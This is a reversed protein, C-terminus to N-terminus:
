RLNLLKTGWEEAAELQGAQMPGEKGSVWFSRTDLVIAGNQKVQEAIKPAAYKIVSLLIKLFIGHGKTPISTDFAAVKKNKFFQGGLDKLLKQINETPKGGHTPSGIVILDYNGLLSLNLEDVSKIDTQSGGLGKHIAEAVKHTNGYLSDFIVINTM